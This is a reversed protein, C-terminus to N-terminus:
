VLVGDVCRHGDYIAPAGPPHQVSAPTAASGGRLLCWVCSHDAHVGPIRHGHRDPVGFGLALLRCGMQQSPRLM